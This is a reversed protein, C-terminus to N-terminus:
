GPLNEKKLSFLNLIDQELREADFEDKNNIKRGIDRVAEITNAILLLFAYSM